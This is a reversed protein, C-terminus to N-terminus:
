TKLTLNLFNTSNTQNTPNTKNTKNTSDFENAPEIAQSDGQAEKGKFSNSWNFWDVGNSKGKNVVSVRLDCLFSSGNKLFCLMGRETDETGGHHVHNGM